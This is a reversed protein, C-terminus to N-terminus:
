KLRNGKIGIKVKMFPIKKGSAIIADEIVGILGFCCPVEMHAYMVSKIDNDKFMATIKEHYKDIDDLKPSM